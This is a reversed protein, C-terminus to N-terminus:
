GEGPVLFLRAVRGWDELELVVEVARALGNEAEGEQALPPWDIAWELERNLFRAEAEKVQNLLVQTYPESDQARDLVRWAQRLLRGDEIRYRVRQLYSRPRGTPNRWGARTLELFVEGQGGLMAPVRDGYEDRIGRRSAQELDRGVILWTTQLEALRVAQAEVHAQTNMVTKLGGYALVSLVSFVALAM